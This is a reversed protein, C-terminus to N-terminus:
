SLYKIVVNATAITFAPDLLGMVIAEGPYIYGGICGDSGATITYQTINVNMYFISQRAGTIADYKFVGFNIRVSASITIDTIYMVANAPCTLIGARYGNYCASYIANTTSSSTAIYIEQPSSISNALRFNNIGVMQQTFGTQLPLVNWLYASVDIMATRENGLTDIYEYYIKENMSTYIYFTKPQTIGWNNASILQTCMNTGTGNFSTYGGGLIGNQVSSQGSFVLQKVKPIIQYINLGTLTGSSGFLARNVTQTDATQIYGSNDRGVIQVNTTEM